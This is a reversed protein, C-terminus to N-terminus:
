ITWAMTEDCAIRNAAILELRIEVVRSWGTKVDQRPAFHRDQFM